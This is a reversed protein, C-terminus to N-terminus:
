YLSLTILGFVNRRWRRGSEFVWRFNGYTMWLIAVIIAPYAFFAWRPPLVSPPIVVNLRLIWAFVFSMVVGAAMSQVVSRTLTSAWFGALSIAM